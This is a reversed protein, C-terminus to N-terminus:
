ERTHGVPFQDCFMNLLAFITRNLDEPYLSPHLTTIDWQSQKKAYEITERCPALIEEQVRNLVYDFVREMDDLVREIHEPTHIGEEEEEEALYTELHAAHLYLCFRTYGSWPPEARTEIDMREKFLDYYEDSRTLNERRELWRFMEWELCTQQMPRKLNFHAVINDTLFAMSLRFNVVMALSALRALANLGKERPYPDMHELIRKFKPNDDTYKELGERFWLALEYHHKEGLIQAENSYPYVSASV